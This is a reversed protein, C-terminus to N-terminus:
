LLGEAVVPHIQTSSNELENVYWNRELYKRGLIGAIDILAAVRYQQIVIDRKSVGSCGSPNGQEIWHHIQQGIRHWHVRYGYLDM